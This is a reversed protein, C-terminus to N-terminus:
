TERSAETAIRKMPLSMPTEHCLLFERHVFQADDPLSIGETIVSFSQDPITICRFVSRTQLRKRRSQKSKLIIAALDNARCSQSKVIIPKERARVQCRRDFLHQAVYGPSGNHRLLNKFNCRKCAPRRAGCSSKNLRNTPEAFCVTVKPRKKRQGGTQVPQYLTHPM